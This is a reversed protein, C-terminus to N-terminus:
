KKTPYQPRILALPDRGHKRYVLFDSDLTFVAHRAHLEAMRVVCADALSMPTDRYKRHLARLAPVHENIQFAISLAGNELLGFLADQARHLRALLHMAEALVPECTLLPAELEAIRETVWCHHQEARDLFAVLPGTDVIAATM